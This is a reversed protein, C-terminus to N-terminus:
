AFVAAVSSKQAAAKQRDRIEKALDVTTKMYGLHQQQFSGGSMGAFLEQLTHAPVAKAAYDDMSTEMVNRIDQMKGTLDDLYKQQEEYYERMSSLAEQEAETLMRGGDSNESSYTNFSLAYNGALDRLINSVQAIRESLAGSYAQLNFGRLKDLFASERKQDASKSRGAARNEMDRFIDLVGAASYSKRLIEDEIDDYQTGVVDRRSILERLIRRGGWFNDAVKRQAAIEANLAALVAVKKEQNLRIERELQSERKEALEVEAQAFTSLSAGKGSPRRGEELEQIKQYVREAEQDLKDVQSYLSQVNESVELKNLKWWHAGSLEGAAESSLSSIRGTLKKYENRLIKLERDRLGAELRQSADEFLNLRGSASDFSAGVDIGASALKQIAERCQSIDAASLHALSSFGKLSEFANRLVGAQQTTNKEVNGAWKILGDTGSELGEMRNRSAAERYVLLAKLGMTAAAALAIYPHAMLVAWLAKVGSIAALSAVKMGAFAVSVGKIMGALKGSVATGLKSCIINQLMAKNSAAIRLTSVSFHVNLLAVASAYVKAVIAAAKMASGIVLTGGAILATVPIAEKFVSVVGAFGRLLVAAIRGLSNLAPALAEGVSIAVAEVASEVNRFAGGLGDEMKEAAQDVYGNIDDMKQLFSSIASANFTLQGGGLAGRDGFIETIAAIQEANGLSSLAKGLETWIAAMERLNGAGDTAEVGYATRLLQQVKPDAMQKYSKALATGAISGRIGLNALVGLAAAVDKLTAGSQAAFPAATKLSEGLDTLSQASGNATAALIDVVSGMQSAEMGFIRLQNAAITSAEALDTGTVTSLGMVQSIASRIEDPSFGMMGLATMGQSVQAATFRTAAGLAKASQTLKRLQGDSAGTVAAARRMQDDFAAFVSAAAKFPAVMAAGTMEVGQGIDLLKKSFVSISKEAKKLNEELGSSDFIMKIISFAAYKNQYDM